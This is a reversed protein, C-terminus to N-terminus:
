KILIKKNKFPGRLARFLDRSFTLLFNNQLDEMIRYFTVYFCIVFCLGNINM